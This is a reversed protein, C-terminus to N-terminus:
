GRRPRRRMRWIALPVAAALALAAAGPEPTEAAVVGSDMELDITEGGAPAGTLPNSVFTFLDETNTLTWGNVPDFSLDSAVEQEIQQDTLPTNTGSVDFQGDQRDDVLSIMPNPDAEDFTISLKYLLPEGDDGVGVVSPSIGPLDTGAEFLFGEVDNPDGPTPTATMGSNLLLDTALVDGNHAQFSLPDLVLAGASRAPGGRGPTVFASTGTANANYYTTGPRPGVGATFTVTATAQSRFNGSVIPGATVTNAGGGIPKPL